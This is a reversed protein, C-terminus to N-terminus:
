FYVALGLAASSTSSAATDFTTLESQYTSPDALDYVSIFNEHRRGFMFGAGVRGLASLKRKFFWEFGASGTGGVSWSKREYKSYHTHLTLDSAVYPDTYEDSQRARSWMPGFGVYVTLPGRRDLYLQFESSVGVSYYRSNHRHSPGPPPSTGNAEDLNLTAGIQIASRDSIHHKLWLGSRSGSGGFVLLQLATAGSRISNFSEARARCPTSLAFCCAAICAVARSTARASM